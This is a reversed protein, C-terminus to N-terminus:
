FEQKIRDSLDSNSICPKYFTKIHKKILREQLEKLNVLSLFLIKGDKSNAIELKLALTNSIYQELFVSLNADEDLEITGQTIDNLKYDRLRDIQKQILKPHPIQQLFKGKIEFLQDETLM